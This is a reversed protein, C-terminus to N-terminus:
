VCVCNCMLVRVCLEAVLRQRSEEQPIESTRYVASGRSGPFNFKGPHFSEEMITYPMRERYREGQRENTM